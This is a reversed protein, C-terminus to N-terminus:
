ISWHSCHFYVVAPINTCVHVWGQSYWIAAHQLSDGLHGTFYNYGCRGFYGICFTMGVDLRAKLQPLTSLLVSFFQLVVGIVESVFPLLCALFFLSLTFFHVTGCIVKFFPCM